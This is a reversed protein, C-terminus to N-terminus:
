GVCGLVWLSGAGLHRQQSPPGTIDRFSEGRAEQVSRAAGRAVRAYVARNASLREGITEAHRGACDSQRARCRVALMANLTDFSAAERRSRGAVFVFRRVAAYVEVAFM